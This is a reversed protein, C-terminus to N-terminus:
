EGIKFSVAVGDGLPLISTDYSQNESMFKLYKRMRKVITIKRRILLENTAVMGRFLVNDAFLIGGQNLMRHCHPFFELYQGKAADLLILDFKDDMNSLIEEAEGTAISIDGSLAAKEINQEALRVMEENREISIIRCSGAAKHMVMASYGIATGIELINRVGKLRILFSLFKAVEPQIIPVHNLEAYEELEILLTDNKPILERIYDEIYDYVIKSLKVEL